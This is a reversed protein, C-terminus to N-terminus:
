RRASPRVDGFIDSGPYRSLGPFMAQRMKKQRKLCELDDPRCNEEGLGTVFVELLSLAADVLPSKSQAASAGASSAAM